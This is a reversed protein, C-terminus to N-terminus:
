TYRHRFDSDKFFSRKWLLSFQEPVLIWTKKGAALRAAIENYVFEPKGSNATGLLMRLM